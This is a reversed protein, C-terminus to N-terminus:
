NDGDPFRVGGRLSADRVCFWLARRMGDEDALLAELRQLLIELDEPEGIEALLAAQFCEYAEDLVGDIMQASDQRSLGDAALLEILPERFGDMM